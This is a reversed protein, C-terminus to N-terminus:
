TVILKATMTMHGTGCLFSCRINYTGAKLTTTKTLNAGKLNVDTGDISLGHTGDVNELTLKVAGAKVTYEKKDFQFTKASAKFVLEQVDTKGEASVPESINNATAAADKAKSGCATLAFILAVAMILSFLRKM